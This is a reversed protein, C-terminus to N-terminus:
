NIGDGGLGMFCGNGRNGRRRSRRVGEEQWFGSVMLQVM